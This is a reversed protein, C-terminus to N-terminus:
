VSNEPETDHRSTSMNRSAQYGLMGAGGGVIISGGGASPGDADGISESNTRCFKLCGLCLICMYCCCVILVVAVTGLESKEKEKCTWVFDSFDGKLVGKRQRSTMCRDELVM